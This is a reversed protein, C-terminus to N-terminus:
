FLLDFSNTNKNLFFLEYIIWWAKIEISKLFPPAKWANLFLWLNQPNLPAAIKIQSFSRSQNKVKNSFFSEKYRRTKIRGGFLPICYALSRGTLFLQEGLWLL